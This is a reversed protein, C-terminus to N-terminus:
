KTNAVGLPAGYYAKYPDLEDEDLGSNGKLKMVLENYAYPLIAEIRERFTM